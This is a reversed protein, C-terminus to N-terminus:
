GLAFYRDFFATLKDLVTQKRIGYGDDTAFRSIPPLIATVTAGTTPIAGDRFARDVFARTAEPSLGEDVILQALEEERRAEVYRRWDEKVDSDVSVRDVFALILDRKNRLSVSSDIARRIKALTEIERDSGDGREGRYQEVLMLIYDVNVEVQKVLAIEFVVDDIISEKESDAARRLEGYYDLYISQYDQYERESLIENGAFEDFSTLINRLRLIAGFLGIFMKIAGEGRWVETLPFLEQLEGVRGTYEAYYDAYPKLLVVGRADENGFLALADNTAQELDRFTVINGYTKVSNLIRNTRSYAQVLGHARLGKDVWLTNLTTADFGTLFM